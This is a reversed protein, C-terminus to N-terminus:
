NRREVRQFIDPKSNEIYKVLDTGFVCITDQWPRGFTGFSMDPSLFIFYDGDPFVSIPLGRYEDQPNFRYSDHQWDLAYMSDGGINLRRFAEEIIAEFNDLEADTFSSKFRFVVSNEPECIAPESSYYNPKFDFKKVFKSWTSEYEDKQLTVHM